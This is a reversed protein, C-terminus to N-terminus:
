TFTVIGLSVQFLIVGNVGLYSYFLMFSLMHGLGPPHSEQPGFPFDRIARLKLMVPLARGRFSQSLWRGWSRKSALKVVTMEYQNALSGNHRLHNRTADYLACLECGAEGLDKSLASFFVHLNSNMIWCFFLLCIRYPTFVFIALPAPRSNAMTLTPWSQTYLFLKSKTYINTLVYFNCADLTPRCIFLVRFCAPSQRYPSAFM